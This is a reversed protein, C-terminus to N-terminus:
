RREEAKCRRTSSPSGSSARSSFHRQRHRAAQAAQRRRGEDARTLAGHRACTAPFRDLARYPLHRQRRGEADGSPHPRQARDGLRLAEAPRAGARRRRHGLGLGSLRTWLPIHAFVVIPQSSSRGKLDDELWALQEDGLNGLGGAKLDVVNVLGIFHVGNADFSFVLGRRQHRTRLTRPLAQGGRRHRRTRGARLARRAAIALHHARRRRIRVAKSLHTIDGTHIM